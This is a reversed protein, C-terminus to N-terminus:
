TREEGRRREPESEKEGEKKDSKGKRIGEKGKREKRKRETGTRKKREDQKGNGIREKANREKRKTEKGPIIANGESEKGNM